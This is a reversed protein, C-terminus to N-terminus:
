VEVLLFSGILQFLLALLFVKRLINWLEIIDM